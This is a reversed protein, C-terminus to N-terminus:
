HSFNIPLLHIDITVSGIAKSSHLSLVVVLRPCKPELGTATAAPLENISLRSAEDDDAAAAVLYWRDISQRNRVLIMEASPGVSIKKPSRDKEDYDDDGIPMFIREDNEGSKHSQQIM